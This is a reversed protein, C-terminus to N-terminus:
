NGTCAFNELEKVLGEYEEGVSELRIERQNEFGTIEVKLYTSPIMEGGREPWEILVVREGYLYEEFGIDYLEEPENLRYLDFHAVSLRGEYENVLTFTPSTVYENVGLSKLIGSALCTKGAGLDGYLLLIMGPKLINGIKNGFQITDEPSNTTYIFM